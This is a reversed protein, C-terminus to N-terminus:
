AKVAKVTNIVQYQPDYKDLEAKSLEPRGMGYLFASASLVNGYSGVEVKGGPFSDAMIRRLVRDTFAWYWIAGWEDKDISTIYPVTLLLTGGPKLIRHCTALAAKFDYILHLTQTLVICDFSNDPIQPADSIDGIITAMPNKDNVHLIDSKTVNKGGFHLTYENDGIELVRGSISPAEKKLFNEIYYRDVPGGRDYGFERSLPATRRLDGLSVHGVAPLHNQYLGVRNLWRLGFSPTTKKIISKLMNVKRLYYKIFLGPRHQWLTLLSEKPPSTPESISRAYLQRCYYEKWVQQGRSYAAQEAVTKLVNKQRRLVMLVSSLMRPINGSMNETHLRYAAIKKTHHAVPHKRAIKLYIDYDECSKLSPDFLVEDFIWRRYMVTAHMGIYNGQLLQQYHDKPVEWIEERITGEQEFVKDHAGSVFALKPNLQLFAVNTALADPLLWDDADLFVLLEGTSHRIGTNRAASLGQNEQYIYKVGELAQTERRTTDVSGDDVVIIEITPYDQQWISQVAERLYKGHNYCPIVVSVLPLATEPQKGYSPITEPAKQLIQAM